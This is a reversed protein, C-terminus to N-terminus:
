IKFYIGNQLVYKPPPHNHETNVKFIEGNASKKVRATCGLAKSSCLWHASYNIQSYTYGNIMVLFKKGSRTPIM